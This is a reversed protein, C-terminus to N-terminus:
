NAASKVASRSLPNIFRTYRFRSIRAAHGSEVCYSCQERSNFLLIFWSENSSKGAFCSCTRLSYHEKYSSMRRQHFSYMHRQTSVYLRRCQAQTNRKALCTCENVNQWISRIHTTYVFKYWAPTLLSSVGSISHVHKAETICCHGASPWALHGAGPQPRRLKYVAITTMPQAHPLPYYMAAGYQPFQLPGCYIWSLPLPWTTRSTDFSQCVCPQRAALTYPLTFTRFSVPLNSNAFFDTSYMQSATRSSAQSWHHTYLTQQPATSLMWPTTCSCSKKSNGSTFANTGVCPVNWEHYDIQCLFITVM